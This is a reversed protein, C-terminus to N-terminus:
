TQFLDVKRYLQIKTWKLYRKKTFFYICTGINLDYYVNEKEHLFLHKLFKHESLLCSLKWSWLDNRSLQKSVDSLEQLSNKMTQTDM